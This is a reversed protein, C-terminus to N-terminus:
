WRSTVTTPGSQDVQRSDRLVRFCNAIFNNFTAHHLIHNATHGTEEAIMNVSSHQHMWRYMWM